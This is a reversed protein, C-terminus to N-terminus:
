LDLIGDPIVLTLLHKEEDVEKLLDEHLPLLVEQGDAKQVWLCPNGPIAEFASVTGVSRGEPDQVSWGTFDEQDEEEFYDAFVDAGSLEDADKLSRVGTLTVLARNNGRPTFSEFYFPVPLGDFEIFVPEQLDIDEPLIDLFSMVLEGQTGNSKLVKGIRLM